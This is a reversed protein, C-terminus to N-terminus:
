RTARARRALEGFGLAAARSALTRVPARARRAAARDGAQTAARLAMAAATWEAELM